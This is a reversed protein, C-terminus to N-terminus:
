RVIISNRISISDATIGTILFNAPNFWTPKFKNITTDIGIFRAATTNIAVQQQNLQNQLVTIQATFARQQRALLTDVTTTSYVTIQAQVFGTSIILLFTLIKKM